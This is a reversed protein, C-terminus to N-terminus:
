RASSDEADTVGNFREADFVPNEKELEIETREEVFHGIQTSSGGLGFLDRAAPLNLSASPTQAFGRLRGLDVRVLDEITSAIQDHVTERLKAPKTKDWQGPAYLRGVRLSSRDIGGLSCDKRPLLTATDCIVKGDADKAGQFIATRYSFGGDPAEKGQSSFYLFGVIQGNKYKLTPALSKDLYGLFITSHGSTQWVGRQGDQYWWQGQHNSVKKLFEPREEATWTVEPRFKSRDLSIFDGPKADEFNLRGGMGFLEFAYGAGRKDDPGENEWIYTRIDTRRSSNWSDSGIQSFPEASGTAQFYFNLAEIATEAVAAVCMTAPPAKAVIVGAQPGWNL